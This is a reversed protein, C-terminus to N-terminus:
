YDTLEVCRIPRYRNTEQDDALPPINVNVFASILRRATSNCISDASEHLERATPLKESFWANMQDHAAEFQVLVISVLMLQGFLTNM